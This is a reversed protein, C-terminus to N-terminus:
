YGEGNEKGMEGTAVDKLTGGAKVAGVGLGAATLGGAVGAAIKTKSWSSGVKAADQAVTGGTTALATTAKPAAKFLGGLKSFMSAMGFTKRKLTYTAM